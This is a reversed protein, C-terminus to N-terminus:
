VAMGGDVCSVQGTIYRAEESALFAVLNAVDEVQGLSKMPISNKMQAIIDEPLKATMDTEIFGPAVANCTIGRSGLEKAVSKTLGIMGAKSAAYNAQGANGSVGVVSSINIIHGSKQKLMIKAIHRICLFAGKLNTDLVADFDDETMKMLLNDKTIGANNVFIDISGYTEKVYSVMRAVDDNKAVDAQVAEARVGYEKCLAVTENAGDAGHAYCTVVDAGAKALAICIGRGIGRSGGTVIAITGALSM